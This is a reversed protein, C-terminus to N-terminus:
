IAQGLKNLTVVMETQLVVPNATPNNGGVIAIRKLKFGLLDEQTLNIAPLNTSFSAKSNGYLVTRISLDGTVLTGSHAPVNIGESGDGPVASWSMEWQVEGSNTAYVENICWNVLVDINTIEDWRQVIESTFYIEDNIAFEYGVFNGAYVTTPAAVAKGTATIPIRIRRKYRADGVLSVGDSGLKVYNESDGFNSSRKIHQM